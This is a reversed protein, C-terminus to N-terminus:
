PLYRAEREKVATRLIQEASRDTGFFVVGIGSTTLGREPEERQQYVVRAFGRFRGHEMEFEIQLPSGIPLLDSLEIFAGRSSLSSLVAVYRRDGARVNATMDVPIRTESREYKEHPLAVACRVIYRLEADTFPAWLVWSAGAQKIEARRAEEPEEGLVVFRPRTGIEKEMVDLIESASALDFTPPVALMRIADKEQAVFLRAEDVESAYHLDIGLRGFRLALPGITGEGDDVLLVRGDLKDRFSQVEEESQWMAPETVDSAQNSKFVPLMDESSEASTGLSLRLPPLGANPKAIPAPEGTRALYRSADDPPLAPAYLFGQILDCGMAELPELQSELDIGEAVVTLGLSHAMSVVASAVGEASSDNDVERLLSRDMKLVDLSFRNLYTLASYGTGFDDLSIKVGIARLDRLTLESNEDDELLLSETLELELMRPEISHSKLADCVVRQLDTEVFQASSVNVSVPVVAFGRDRWAKM